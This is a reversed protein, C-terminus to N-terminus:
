LVLMKVLQINLYGVWRCAKANCLIERNDIVLKKVREADEMNPVHIYLFNRLENATLDLRDLVPVGSVDVPIKESEVIQVLKDFNATKTLPIAVKLDNSCVQDVKFQSLTIETNNSVVQKVRPMYEPTMSRFRIDSCDIGDHFTLGSNGSKDVIVYGFTSGVPKDSNANFLKQIRDSDVCAFSKFKEFATWLRGDHFFEKEDASLGSLDKSPTMWTIPTILAIVADPNSKVILDKWFLSWLNSSKDKSSDDQFPPNGVFIDINKMDVTEKTKIDSPILKKVRDGKFSTMTADKLGDDIFVINDAPIGFLDILVTIFEPASIVGIKDNKTFKREDHIKKLIEYCVRFPTRASQCQRNKAPQFRSDNYIEFFNITEQSAWNYFDGHEIFPKPFTDVSPIANFPILTATRTM